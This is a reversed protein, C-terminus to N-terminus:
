CPGEESVTFVKRVKTGLEVYRKDLTSAKHIDRLQDASIKDPLDQASASALLCAAALALVSAMTIASLSTNSLAALSTNSPATNGGGSSGVTHRSISSLLDPGRVEVEGRGPGYGAAHPVPSM